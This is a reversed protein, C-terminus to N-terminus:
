LLKPKDAFWWAVVFSRFSALASDVVAFDDQGGFSKPITEVFMYQVDTYHWGNVALFARNHFEDGVVDSFGPFVDSWHSMLASFHAYGSHLRAIWELLM